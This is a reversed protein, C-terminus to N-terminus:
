TDKKIYSAIKKLLEDIEFPKAIFDDAGVEQISKDVNSQASIIIVPIDKTLPQSKLVRCVERGDTGSLLIDLLILDPLNSSNLTSICDADSSTIAKYGSSELIAEFAGLIGDDDDIVLIIPQSKVQQELM